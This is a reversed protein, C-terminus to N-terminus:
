TGGGHHGDALRFGSASEDMVGERIAVASWHHFGEPPKVRSVRLLAAIQDDSQGASREQRVLEQVSAIV